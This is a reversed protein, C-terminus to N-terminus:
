NTPKIPIIALFKFETDSDSSHTEGDDYFLVGEGSLWDGCFNSRFLGMLAFQNSKIDHVRLFSYEGFKEENLFEELQSFTYTSGIFMLM